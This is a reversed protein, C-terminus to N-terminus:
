SLNMSFVKPFVIFSAIFNWKRVSLCVFLSSLGSHSKAKMCFQMSILVFAKLSSSTEPLLTNKRSKKFSFPSNERYFSPNGAKELTKILKKMPEKFNKERVKYRIKESSTIFRNSSSKSVTIVSSIRRKCKKSLKSFKSLFIIFNSTSSSIILFDLM